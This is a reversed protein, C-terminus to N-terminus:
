LFLHLTCVYSALTYPTSVFFLDKIERVSGYMGVPHLPLTLSIKSESVDWVSGYMGVPHLPLTLSTHSPKKVFRHLFLHYFVFPHHPADGKVFM